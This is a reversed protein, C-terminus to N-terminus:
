RRQSGGKNRRSISVILYGVLWIVPIPALAVVAADRSAHVASAAKAENEKERCNAFAADKPVYPPETDLCKSFAISGEDRATNYESHRTVLYGTIAWLVSIVIGATLWGSRHRKMRSNSNVGSIRNKEM